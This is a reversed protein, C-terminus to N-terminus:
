VPSLRRQAGGKKRGFGTKGTYFGSFHFSHVLSIRARSSLNELFEDPQLMKGGM